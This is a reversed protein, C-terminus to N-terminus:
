SDFLLLCWSIQVGIKSGKITNSKVHVYIESVNSEVKMCASGILNHFTMQPKGLRSRGEVKANYLQKTIKKDQLSEMHGFRRLM